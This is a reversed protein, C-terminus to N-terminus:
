RSPRISFSTAHLRRGGNELVPPIRGLGEPTDDVAPVGNSPMGPENRQQSIPRRETDILKLVCEPPKFGTCALTPLLWLNNYRAPWNHPHASVALSRFAEHSKASRRVSVTYTSSRIERTSFFILTGLSDCILSFWIFALPPSGSSCVSM